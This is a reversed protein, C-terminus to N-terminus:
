DIREGFPVHVAGLDIAEKETCVYSVFMSPKPYNKDGPNQYDVKDVAFYYELAVPQKGGCKLYNYAYQPYGRTLLFVFIIALFIIIFLSIIINKKTLKKTSKNKNM